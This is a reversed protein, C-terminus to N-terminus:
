NNMFNDIETLPLKYGAFDAQTQLLNVYSRWSDNYTETKTLESRAKTAEIYTEISEAIRSDIEVTIGKENLLAVNAKIKENMAATVEKGLLQKAM